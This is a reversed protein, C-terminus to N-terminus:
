PLVIVCNNPVNTLNDFTLITEKTTLFHSLKANSLDVFKLHTCNYFLRKPTKSDETEKIPLIVNNMRECNEFANDANLFNIEPLTVSELVNCNYAIYHLSVPNKFQWGSLDIKKIKSEAFCGQLSTLNQCIINKPFIIEELSYCQYFWGKMTYIESFDFNTLDIKKVYQTSQFLFDKVKDVSIVFRNETKYYVNENGTEVKVETLKHNNIAKTIFAPNTFIIKDM